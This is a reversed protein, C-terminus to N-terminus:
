GATIFGKYISVAAPGLVVLFLSPFIFLMIPFILKVPLKAAKERARDIRKSRMETAHVRLAAAVSTGFHEAQILLTVLAQVEEIGTRLTLSRLADERSKGARLELSVLQLEIALEPHAIAIEEGVRQIAADLGLGAEVCVVLMDMADPFGESFGLQRQAKRRAVMFDPLYFGVLAAAALVLILTSREVAGLYGLVLVPVLSLLPLLLVLLLKSGFYYTLANPHRLGAQMLRTRMESRKWNEAPVALKMAPELWRVHFAGEAHPERNADAAEAGTRAIGELRRDAPSTRGALAMLVGIVLLVTALFSFALITIEMGGEPLARLLALIDNM